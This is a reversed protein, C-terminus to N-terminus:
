SKKNKKDIAEHFVDAEIHLYRQTTELSEHRALAQLYRLDIGSNARHTLSTHRFWHTSAKRLRKASELDKLALINAAQSVQSKVIRYLMDTTISAERNLQSVLPAYDDSSPYDSLGRFKRYRVLAKMTEEMWPIQQTKNGKGTIQWWWKDHMKVISNMRHTVIESSRPSQNYLLTFIFRTREYHKIDNPTKTSKNLLFNWFFIWTAKDIYREVNTSQYPKPQNAKSLLRVPNKNLYGANVLFSFCVGIIVMVQKRSAESLYDEFPRWRPDNRPRRPGCWVDYPTPKKLFQLYQQIDELALSSFPKNLHNLCWLYLREIDKRYSRFTQPSNEYRRLWIVIAEFDNTASIQLLGLSARNKGISGDLTSPLEKMTEIPKIFSSM